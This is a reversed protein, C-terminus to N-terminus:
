EGITSSGAPAEEDVPTEFTGDLIEQRKAEVDSVISESLTFSGETNIPAIDSGGNKLFSFQALNQATYTGDAIQSVLADITPRMNWVLSTVVYDPAKEKQDVMMGVVPLGAESAAEIVGDREAFLVDAGSSIAAEAAQKATAPDYFSNIFSTTVKAEPNVPGQVRVLLEPGTRRDISLTM